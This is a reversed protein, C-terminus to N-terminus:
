PRGEGDKGDAAEREALIARIRDDLVERSVRRGVADLVAGLVLLCFGVIDAWARAALEAFMADLDHGDASGSLVISFATRLPLAGYLILLLGVAISAWGATRFAFRRDKASRGAADDVM